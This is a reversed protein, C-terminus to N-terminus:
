RNRLYVLTSASDHQAIETSSKMVVTVEVQRINDVNASDALVLSTIDTGDEQLYRFVLGGAAPVPGALPEFRAGERRKIWLGGVSSDDTKYSIRDYLYIRGGPALQEDPDTPAGSFARARSLRWDTTTLPPDPNLGACQTQAAGLESPTRDEVPLFRWNSGSSGSPELALSDDLVDTSSPLTAVAASPFLVVINGSVYGCVMGWARPSRFRISDPTAKIVGQPGIARLEAAIVDLAARSNQQVEQRATQLRAFRSQGVLLQFIISVVIGSLVLAVLLEILTFGFRDPAPRAM